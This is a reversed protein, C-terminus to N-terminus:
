HLGRPKGYRGPHVLISRSPHWGGHRNYDGSSHRPLPGPTDVDTGQMAGKFPVPNQAAASVALTATLIMAPMPLYIKSRKM